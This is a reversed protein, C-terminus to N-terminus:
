GYTPSSTFKSAVALLNEMEFPKFIFGDAGADKSMKETDKHASILIIPIHATTKQAKLKKCVTRGDAGSMWIDLLILDPRYEQVSKGTPANTTTKVEYGASELILTIVELIAPDDDVVLIKKKLETM